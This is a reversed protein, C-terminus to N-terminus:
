LSQTVTCLPRDSAFRSNWLRPTGTGTRRMSWSALAAAARNDGQPRAVPREFLARRHESQGVPRDDPGPFRCLSRSQGVFREPALTPGPSSRPGLLHCRDTTSRPWAPWWTSPCRTTTTTPRGSRGRGGTIARLDVAYRTLEATPAFAIITQYGDEGPDTGQVRARRAHLDGLVDGQLSAPITVELRSVPELLVPGAKAMAQRFALAGAM